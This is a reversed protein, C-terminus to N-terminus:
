HAMAVVAGLSLTKWKNSQPFSELAEENWKVPCGLQLSLPHEIPCLMKLVRNNKAEQPEQHHHKM